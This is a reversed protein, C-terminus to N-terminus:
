SYDLQTLGGSRITPAPSGLAREISQYKYNVFRLVIGQTTDIVICLPKIQMASKATHIICIQTTNVYRAGLEPESGRQCHLYGCQNLSKTRAEMSTCFFGGAM